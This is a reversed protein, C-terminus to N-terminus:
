AALRQQRLWLWLAPCLQRGWAKLWLLPWVWGGHCRVFFRWEHAPPMVNPRNLMALRQKFPLRADFVSGVKPNLACDGYFGPAVYLTFGAAQLRLGYDFDGLGHSFEAALLGVATVAAKPILCLNGNIFTCPQPTHSPQLVPGFALPNLKSRRNRGGYSATPLKNIATPSAMSGVMAGATPTQTLYSQLLRVIADPYLWVDDNLWLYFDFAEPLAQQWLQRMAGCWYLDADGRSVHVFPFAAAVAALTGDDGNDLLFVTLQVQQATTTAAPQNLHQSAPQLQLQLQPQLQPEQQPQPQPQPQSFSSSLVTAQDVPLYQVLFQLQPVLSHLCRLTQEKRNFCTMLVAIRLVATTM